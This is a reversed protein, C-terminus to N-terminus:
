VAMAPEELRVNYRVEVEAPPKNGIPELLPPPQVLRGMRPHRIAQGQEGTAGTAAVATRGPDVRPFAPGLAIIAARPPQFFTLGGAGPIRMRISLSPLPMM